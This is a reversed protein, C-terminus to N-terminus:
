QGEPKMEGLQVIGVWYASWTLISERINIQHQLVDSCGSVSLSLSGARVCVCVCLGIFTHCERM